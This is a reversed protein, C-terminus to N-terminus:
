KAKAKDHSRPRGRKRAKGSLRTFIEKLEIAEPTESASIEWVTAVAMSAILLRKFIAMASEQQWHELEQGGSKM